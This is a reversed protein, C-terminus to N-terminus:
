LRLHRRGARGSRWSQRGRDWLCCRPGRASISPTGSNGNAAGGGKGKAQRSVLELQKKKLDYTYIQDAFPLSPGSLNSADSSFVAIRGNGSIEASGSDDDAGGGGKNKSRRSVLQVKKKAFDYVYVNKSAAIPGGLNTAESTMIVASGDDSVQPSRQENNSAMAGGNTSQRSALKADGKKALADLAPAGAVAVLVATGLM